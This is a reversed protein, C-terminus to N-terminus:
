KDPSNTVWIHDIFSDPNKKMQDFCEHFNESSFFSGDSDNVTFRITGPRRDKTSRQTVRAPKEVMEIKDMSM